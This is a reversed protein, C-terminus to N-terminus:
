EKNMQQNATYILALVEAVALYLDSSIESNLELASLVEALNNDQYLPIDNERAVAIIKRAIEGKGKATVRPARDNKKNYKVAIAKEKKETNM